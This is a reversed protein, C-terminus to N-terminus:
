SRFRRLSSFGGSVPGVVASLPRWRAIGARVPNHDVYAMACILARETILVQSRFRAEWFHGACNDEAYVQRPIPQSLRKMFWSLSSLRQRYIAATSQLSDQEAQCLNADAIHRQVMLTEKFVSTCRKLVVDDSWHVAHEPDLKVVLHYHNSLVAYACVDISFLSSLVRILADIWVRRHEYCKVSYRDTGCRFAPRM